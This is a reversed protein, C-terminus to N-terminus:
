EGWACPLCRECPTTNQWCVCVLHPSYIITVISRDFQTTCRGHPSKIWVTGGVIYPSSITDDQPLATNIGEFLDQLNFQSTSYFGNRWGKAYRHALVRGGPNFTNKDCYAKNCSPIKWNDWERIPHPCVSFGSFCGWVKAFQALKKGCFTTGNNTLLESPLERECFHSGVTQHHHHGLGPAAIAELPCFLKPWQRYSNSLQNRFHTVDM